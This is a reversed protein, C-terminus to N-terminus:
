VHGCWAAPRQFLVIGSNRVALLEEFRRYRVRDTLDFICLYGGPVAGGDFEGFMRSIIAMFM